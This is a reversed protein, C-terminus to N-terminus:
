RIDAPLVKSITIGLDVTPCEKDARGRGRGKGKRPKKEEQLCVWSLGPRCSSKSYTDVRHNFLSEHIM